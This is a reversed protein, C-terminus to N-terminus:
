SLEKFVQTKREKKKAQSIVVYAPDARLGGAPREAGTSACRVPPWRRDRNGWLLALHPRL